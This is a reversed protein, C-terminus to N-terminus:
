GKWETRGLRVIDTQDVIWVQGYGGKLALEGATVAARAVVEADQAWFDKGYNGITSGLFRAVSQLAGEAVRSEQRSGILLGPKLIV